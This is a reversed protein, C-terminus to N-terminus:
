ICMSWCTATSVVITQIRVVNGESLIWKQEFEIIKQTRKPVSVKSQCDKEVERVSIEYKSSLHEIADSKAKRDRYQESKINWLCKNLQLDKIFSLVKKNTRM